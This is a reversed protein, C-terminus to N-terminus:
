LLGRSNGKRKIRLLELIQAQVGERRLGRRRVVVLAAVLNVCLMMIYDPLRTQERRLEAVFYEIRVDSWLAVIQIPQLDFSGFTSEEVRLSAARRTQVQVLRILESGPMQPALM